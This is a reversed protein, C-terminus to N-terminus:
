AHYAVIAGHYFWVGGKFPLYSASSDNVGRQTNMVVIQLYPDYLGKKISEKLALRRAKIPKDPYRRLWKTILSNFPLVDSPPFSTTIGEAVTKKWCQRSVPCTESCFDRRERGNGYGYLGQCEAKRHNLKRASDTVKKVPM